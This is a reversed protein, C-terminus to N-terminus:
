SPQARGHREDLAREIIAQVTPSTSELVAFDAGFMAFLVMPTTASVTATRRTTELVAAEGFFDGPGLTAVVDDGRSVDASGSEIVFFFYGAGGENSLHAGPAVSREELHSAVDAREADTLGGFLPIDVLREPAVPM